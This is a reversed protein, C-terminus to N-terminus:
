SKEFKQLGVSCDTLDLGDQPSCVLTKFSEPIGRTQRRDLIEDIMAMFVGAPM